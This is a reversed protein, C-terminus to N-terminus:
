KDYIASRAVSLVGNQDDNDCTASSVVSMAGMRIAIPRMHGVQGNLGRAAVSQGRAAVSQCARLAIVSLKRCIM